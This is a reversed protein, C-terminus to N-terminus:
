QPGSAHVRRDILERHGLRLQNHYDMRSLPKTSLQCFYKKQQDPYWATLAAIERKLASLSSEYKGGAAESHAKCIASAIDPYGVGIKNIEEYNVHLNASARELLEGWSLAIGPYGDNLVAKSFGAGIFAGLNGYSASKSIFTLVENRTPDASLSFVPVIM